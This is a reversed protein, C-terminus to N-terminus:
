DDKRRSAFALEQSNLKEQMELNILYELFLEKNERSVNKIENCTNTNKM